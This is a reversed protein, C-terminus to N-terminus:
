VLAEFRDAMDEVYERYEALTMGLHEAEHREYSRHQAEAAAAERAYQQPTM